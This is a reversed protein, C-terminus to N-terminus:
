EHKFIPKRKEVFAALGESADKSALLGNFMHREFNIGASLTTEYSANVSIKASSLAVMSFRAMKSALQIAGDLIEDPAFIKSILGIRLAEKADIIDGTTIMEM